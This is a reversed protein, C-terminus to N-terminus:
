DKIVRWMGLMEQAEWGLSRYLGEAAPTAFLGVFCHGPAVERIRDVLREVVSRGLGRAQHDPHVVVDQIYFYFAGDGVVRGMGVLAGSDHHAVVGCTSGALSASMAEWWFADGWGVSVALQRHEAATPMRTTFIYSM